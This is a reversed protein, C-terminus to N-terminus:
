TPKFFMLPECFATADRLESVPGPLVNARFAASPIQSAFFFWVAAVGSLAILAIGTEKYFNEKRAYVEWGLLPSDVEKFM